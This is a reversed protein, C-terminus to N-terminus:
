LIIQLDSMFIISIAHNDHRISIIIITYFLIVDYVQGIIIGDAYWMHDDWLPAWRGVPWAWVMAQPSQHNAFALSRGSEVM